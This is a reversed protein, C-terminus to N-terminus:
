RRCGAMVTRTSASGHLAACSFSSVAKAPSAVGSRACSPLLQIGSNAASPASAGSSAQTAAVGASCGVSQNSPM